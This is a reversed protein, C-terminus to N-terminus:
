GGYLRHVGYGISWVLTLATVGICVVAVNRHLLREPAREQYSFLYGLLAGAAIGGGHAWNNSSLIVGTVLIAVAWAGIESLVQQGYAGGRSWGYYMAAGILGCLSASAGITLVVGALYSVFFGVLGSLTYIGIMRNVGYEQIVLPGLQRLALMNFVIHLLGGHLYNASLLTWWGHFYGIPGTGTGGLFFLSEVSPSLFSFPNSSIAIGSPNALLSIVFMGVNVAIIASIVQHPELRAKTRINNKTWSGPAAVGCYPCETEDVSILRKCNPCLISRREREAM